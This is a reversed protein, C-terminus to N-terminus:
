RNCIAKYSTWYGSAAAEVQNVNDGGALGFFNTTVAYSSFVSSLLLLIGLFMSRILYSYPHKVHTNPKIPRDMLFEKTLRTM